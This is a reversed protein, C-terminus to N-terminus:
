QNAPANILANIQALTNLMDATDSSSAALKKLATIQPELKKEMAKRYETRSEIGFEPGSRIWDRIRKFGAYDERGIAAKLDELLICYNTCHLEVPSKFLTHKETETVVVVRYDGILPCVVKIFLIPLRLTCDAVAITDIGTKINHMMTNNRIQEMTLKAEVPPHPGADATSSQVSMTVNPDLYASPLKTDSMTYKVKETNGCPTRSLM